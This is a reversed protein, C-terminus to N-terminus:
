EVTIKQGSQQRRNLHEIRNDIMQRLGRLVEIRANRFHQTVDPSPELSRLFDKVNEAVADIGPYQRPGTGSTNEM